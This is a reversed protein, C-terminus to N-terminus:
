KSEGELKFPSVGNLGLRLYEDKNMVPPKDEYNMNRQHWNELYIRRTREERLKKELMKVEKVLYKLQDASEELAMIQWNYDEDIADDVNRGYKEIGKKDQADIIASFGDIVAQSTKPRM